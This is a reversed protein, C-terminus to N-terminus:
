SLKSWPNSICIVIWTAQPTGYITQIRWGLAALKSHGKLFVCNLTFLHLIGLSFFFYLDFFLVYAFEMVVLGCIINLELWNGSPVLLLHVFCLQLIVKDWLNNWLSLAGSFFFFPMSLSFLTVYVVRRLYIFAYIKSEKFCFRCTLSKFGTLKSEFPM